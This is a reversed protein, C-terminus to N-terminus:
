FLPLNGLSIVSDPHGPGETYAVMEGVVIGGCEQVLKTAGKFTGGSSLVDDVLLVRQGRLREADDAGLYMVQEGKTTISSYVVEKVPRQLYPKLKKLPLITPLRVRHGIAHLLAEAKGEVMLLMTASALVKPALANALAEVLEWDGRINFYAVKVGAPTTDIPLDRTVNGVVIRHFAAM